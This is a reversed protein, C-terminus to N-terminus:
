SCSNPEIRRPVNKSIYEQCFRSIVSTIKLGITQLTEFHKKLRGNNELKKWFANYNIKKFLNSITNLLSANFQDITVTIVNIINPCIQMEFLHQEKILSFEYFIYRTEM